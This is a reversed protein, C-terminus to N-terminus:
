KAPFLKSSHTFFLFKSQVSELVAVEVDRLNPRQFGTDLIKIKINMLQESKLKLSFLKCEFEWVFVTIKSM